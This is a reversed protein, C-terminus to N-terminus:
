QSFPFRVEVAVSTLADAEDSVLLLDDGVIYDNRQFIPRTRRVEQFHAIKRKTAEFKEEIESFSKHGDRNGHVSIFATDNRPFRTPSSFVNDVANFRGAVGEKSGIEQGSSSDSWSFIDNGEDSSSSASPHIGGDSFPYDFAAVRSGAHETLEESSFFRLSGVTDALEGLRAETFLTVKEVEARLVGLFRETISRAKSHAVRIHSPVKREQEKRQRVMQRKQRQRWARKREQKKKSKRGVNKIQQPLGLEGEAPSEDVFSGAAGNWVSGYNVGGDKWPLSAADNGSVFSSSAGYEIQLSTPTKEFSPLDLMKERQSIVKKTTSPPLLSKSGSQSISPSLSTYGGLYLSKKPVFGDSTEDGGDDIDEVIFTDPVANHTREFFAASKSTPYYNDEYLLQQQHQLQQQQKRQRRRSKKKENNLAVEKNRRSVAKNAKGTSFSSTTGTRWPNYVVSGCKDDYEVESEDSNERSSSSFLGGQTSYSFPFQSPPQRYSMGPPHVDSALLPDSKEQFKNEDGSDLSSDETEGRANISSAFANDSNSELFLEDRFDQKVANSDNIPDGPHSREGPRGVIADLMDGRRGYEHYSSTREAGHQEYVSAAQSLLLKLYEYDLYAGEWGTRRGMRLNSGFGVM